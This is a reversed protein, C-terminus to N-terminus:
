FVIAMTSHLDQSQLNSDTRAAPIGGYPISWFGFIERGTFQTSKKTGQLKGVGPVTVCPGTMCDFLGKHTHMYANSRSLLAVVAVLAAGCVRSLMKLSLQHHSISQAGM